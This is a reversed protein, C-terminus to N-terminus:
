ERMKLWGYFFFITLPITFNSESKKKKIGFKNNECLRISQKREKSDDM